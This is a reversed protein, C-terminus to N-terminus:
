KSAKRVLASMEIFVQYAERVKTLSEKVMDRISPLIPTAVTSTATSTTIETIPTSSAVLPTVEPIAEIDTVATSTATDTTSTPHPQAPIVFENWFRTHAAGNLGDADKISGNAKELLKALEDAMKIKANKLKVVDEGIREARKEAIDIASAEQFILVFDRVSDAVVTFNTDRWEKFSQAETKVGALDITLEKDELRSKVDGYYNLAANLQTVTADRWPMADEEVDIALLKIKLDKAEAVSFDVVKVLTSLRYALEDPSKEDKANVLGELKGKVDEIAKEIPSPQEAAMATRSGAITALVFFVATFTILRKM